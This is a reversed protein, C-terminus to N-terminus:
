LQFAIYSIYLNLKVKLRSVDSCLSDYGHLTNVVDALNEELREIMELKVEDSRTQSVKFSMYSHLYTHIPLGIDSNLRTEM